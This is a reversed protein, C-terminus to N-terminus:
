NLILFGIRMAANLADVGALNQIIIDFTGALRNNVIVNPLGTGTYSQVNVLIVSTTLASPHTVTFTHTANALASAAFTTIVGSNGNTLAVGTVISTLQTVTSANSLALKGLSSGLTLTSGPAKSGIKDTAVTDVIIDRFYPTSM